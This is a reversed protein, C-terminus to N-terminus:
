NTQEKKWAELAEIMPASPYGAGIRMTGPRTTLWAAFDNAMSFDKEPKKESAIKGKTNGKEPSVTDIEGNM